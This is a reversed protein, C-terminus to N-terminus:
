SIKFSQNSRSFNFNENLRLEESYLSKHKLIDFTFIQFKDRSVYLYTELDTEEIM